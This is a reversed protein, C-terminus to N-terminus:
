KKQSMQFFINNMFSSINKLFFHQCEILYLQVSRKALPIELIPPPYLFIIMKM